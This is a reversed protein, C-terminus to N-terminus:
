TAPSRRARRARFDRVARAFASVRTSPPEACGYRLAVYADILPELAPQLAPDAVLLRQQLARPGEQPEPALGARTLKRGLRSWARDLADADGAPRPSRLAWLAACLMIFGLVGSLALLLDGANADSLGFPTLVSKQRLADFRIIGQTWLRSAFDLRNRITRLWEHQSWSPAGNAAAAGLEVRAPSVAATPDVRWWGRGETWVEAWAHADSQRVLLYRDAANWWGGQYGTVVRAPIGAARMLFVFASAYHECFGRRTDFLFDDISDHGLLPADLTYTFRQHFLELAARVVAADDGAEARWGAALARARPDFGVPLALARRQDAQALHPALQYRLVSSVRYRRPQNVPDSAVLVRDSSFRTREPATLPLDLAPLWAQGTPELTVEYSSAQQGAELDEVHRTRRRERSWTTGDFDWLVLTRFYRFQQAPAAGDFDVRFAPSDDLLLETMSGPAMTESLGTRARADNGPAGWLPSGLRPVLMFGAAALPLGAAFLAAAIRLETRLPRGRDLPAPQLSALAGLLLGLLVFIALTFPLTQTFLLASMLVFAAFALAVRADRVRETELLKLGLLGCALVSGPERGFLNGYQAIVLAVLLATAPLRIWASVPAANRLRLWWRLPLLVLLPVVLWMPLHQVHTAIAAAVMMSLFGFRHADLREAM